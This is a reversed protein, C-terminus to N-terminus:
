RSRCCAVSGSIIVLVLLVSVRDFSSASAANTCLFASISVISVGPELCEAVLVEVVAGVLDGPIVDPREPVVSLQELADGVAGEVLALV